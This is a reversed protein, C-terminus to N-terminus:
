VGYMRGTDGMIVGIVTAEESRKFVGWISTGGKEKKEMKKEEDGTKEWKTQV